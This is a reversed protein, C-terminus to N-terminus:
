DLTVLGVRVLAARLDTEALPDNDCRRVADWVACAGAVSLAHAKAILERDEPTWTESPRHQSFSKYNVEHNTRNREGGLWDALVLNLMAPPTQRVFKHWPCRAMPRLAAFLKLGQDLTWRQESMGVRCVYRYVGVLYTLADQPGEIVDLPVHESLLTQSEEDLCYALLPAAPHSHLASPM